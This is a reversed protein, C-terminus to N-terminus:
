QRRRRCWSRRPCSARLPCRRLRGRRRRRADALAGAGVVNDRAVHDAPRVIPQDEVRRVDADVHDVRRARNDAVVDHRRREGARHPAVDDDAGIGRADVDVADRRPRHDGPVEDTDIAVARLRIEAVAVADEHAGAVDVDARSVRNSAVGVVADLELQLRHLAHPDDRVRNRVVVPQTDVTLGERVGVRDRRRQRARRGASGHRRDVACDPRPEGVARVEHLKERVRGAVRRTRAFTVDVEAEGLDVDHATAARGERLRQRQQREVGLHRRGRCRHRREARRLEGGAPAHGGAGGLGDDLQRRLGVREDGARLGPRVEPREVVEVRVAAEVGGASRVRRRRVAQELEVEGAQRGSRDAVRLEDERRPGAVRLVAVRVM